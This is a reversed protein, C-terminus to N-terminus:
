ATEGESSDLVNLLAARTVADLDASTIYRRLTESDKSSMGPLIPTAQGGDWVSRASGDQWRLGKDLKRATTRTLSPLDGKEIVTLTTNSPGGAQWVELQTVELEARRALVAEALRAANSSM